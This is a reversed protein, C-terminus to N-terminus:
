IFRILFDFIKNGDKMVALDDEDCGNSILTKSFSACDAIVSYGVSHLSKISKIIKPKLSVSSISKIVCPISKQLVVIMFGVLGKFLNGVSLYVQSKQLYMEDIMLVVDKSINEKELSFKASKIPDVGGQSIKELLQLPIEDLLRKYAQIFM